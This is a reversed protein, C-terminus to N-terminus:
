TPARGQLVESVLNSISIKIRYGSLTKFLTMVHESKHTLYTMRLVTHLVSSVPFKVAPFILLSAASCDM